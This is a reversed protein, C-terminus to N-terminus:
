SKAPRSRFMRRPTSSWPSCGTQWDHTTGLYLKTYLSNTTIGSWPATTPHVGAKVWGSQLCWSRLCCLGLSHPSSCTWSTPTYRHAPHLSSDLGLGTRFNRWGGVAEPGIYRLKLHSQTLIKQNEIDNELMIGNHDDFMLLVTINIWPLKNLKRKFNLM